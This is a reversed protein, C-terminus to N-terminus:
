TSISSNNHIQQVRQTRPFLTKNAQNEITKNIALHTINFTPLINIKKGRAKNKCHLRQLTFCYRDALGGQLVITFNHLTLVKSGHFFCKINSFSQVQFNEKAFTLKAKRNKAECTM